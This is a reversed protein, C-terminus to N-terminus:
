TVFRLCAFGGHKGCNKVSNRAIEGWNTARSGCGIVRERMGARIGNARM